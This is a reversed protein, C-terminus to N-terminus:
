SSANGYYNGMTDKSQYPVLSPICAVELGSKPCIVSRASSRCDICAICVHAYDSNKTKDPLECRNKQDYRDSQVPVGMEDTYDWVDEDTWHRLPFVADPTIGNGPKVDCVLKVSGAIQDKDSDKHGIVVVEWPYNFGGTPRGLIDLLGCMFKKGHEPEVINKPLNLVSHPTKGVQYISNFAMISEGKWLTVGSPVWDYVQLGYKHIISDAFEYKEPFWPDRHFIVPFRLENRLMLDLLVMSDKGFSCMFATKRNVLSRLFRVSYEVKEALSPSM